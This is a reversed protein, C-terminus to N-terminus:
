PRSAEYDEPTDLDTLISPTDMNVYHIDTTHANLFDRPSRPPRMELLETWLPQAILWPHGRRMQFSPVILPGETEMFAECVLRVSRAQVQPQDGLGVLAAATVSKAGFLPQSSLARLGCQLSSLMEGQSYDKNHISRVPYHKGSKVV